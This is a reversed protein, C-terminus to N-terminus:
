RLGVGLADRVGEGEPGLLRGEPGEGRSGTAEGRPGTAEGRSGTAGGRPGTAEGPPGARSVKGQIRTLLQGKAHLEDQITHYVRLMVSDGDESGDGLAQLLQLRRQEALRKRQRHRQQLEPNRAQEGGVVQQELQQLRCVRVRVCVCVCLMCLCVCLM